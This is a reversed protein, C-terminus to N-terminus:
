KALKKENEAVWQRTKSLAMELAEATVRDIGEDWAREFAKPNQRALPALEVCLALTAERVREVMEEHIKAAVDAPIRALEPQVGDRGMFLAM